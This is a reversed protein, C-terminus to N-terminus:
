QLIKWDTTITRIHNDGAPRLTQRVVDLLVKPVVVDHHQADQLPAVLETCIQHLEDFNKAAVGVLVQLCPHLEDSQLAVQYTFHM